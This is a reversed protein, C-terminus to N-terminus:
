GTQESTEFYGLEITEEGAYEINYTTGDVVNINVSTTGPASTPSIRISNSSPVFLASFNIGNGNQIINFSVDYSGNPQLDATLTGIYPNTGGLPEGVGTPLNMQITVERRKRKKKKDETGFSIPSSDFTAEGSFNLVDTSPTADTDLDCTVTNGSQTANTNTPIGQEEATGYQVTADMVNPTGSQGTLSIRNLNVM